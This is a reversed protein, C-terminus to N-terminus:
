NKAKGFIDKKNKQNDLVPDPRPAEEYIHDFLKENYIWYGEKLSYGEYSGDAIMTAGQGSLQGERQILHDFVISGLGPNYNLNVRSDVSYQLIIRQKADRVMSPDKLFIPKGFLPTGDDQFSLVEAVKINEFKNFANFGFLLYVEEGQSEFPLIKYYLQGFWLDQDGILYSFDDFMSEAEDSLSIVREDNVIYGHYTYEEESLQVQWTYIIFSSDPPSVQSIGKIASLNAASNIAILKEFSDVLFNNAREKHKPESVNAVVDAYFSVDDLLKSEEQAYILSGIFIFFSLISIRLM